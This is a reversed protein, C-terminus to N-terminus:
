TDKENKREKEWKWNSEKMSAKCNKSYINWRMSKHRQAHPYTQTHAIHPATAFIILQLKWSANLFRRRGPQLFLCIMSKVYVHHNQHWVKYTVLSLFHNVRFIYKNFCLVLITNNWMFYMNWEKFINQKKFKM